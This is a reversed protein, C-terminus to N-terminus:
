RGLFLNAAQAVLSVMMMQGLYQGILVWYMHMAYMVLTM